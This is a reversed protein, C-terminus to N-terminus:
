IYFNASIFLLLKKLIFQCSFPNKRWLIKWCFGSWTAWNLYSRIFSLSIYTVSFIHVLIQAAPIYSYMRVYEYMCCLLLKFPRVCSFGSSYIFLFKWSYFPFKLWLFSNQLKFLVKQACLFIKLIFNLFLLIYTCPFSPISHIFSFCYKYRLNWWM